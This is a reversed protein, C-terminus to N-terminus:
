RHMIWQEMCSAGMPSTIYVRRSFDDFDDMLLFCSRARGGGYLATAQARRFVFAFRRFRPSSTRTSFSFDFLGNRFLLFEM